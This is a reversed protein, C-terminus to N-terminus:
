NPAGSQPTGAASPQSSSQSTLDVKCMARVKSMFEADKTKSGKSITFTFINSTRVPILSLNTDSPQYKFKLAAKISTKNFGSEPISKVIIPNTVSGDSNVVYSVNVCGMQGKLNMKMPYKPAVKQMPKWYSWDSENVIIHPESTTKSEDVLNSTCGTIILLLLLYKMKDMHNLAALVPRLV